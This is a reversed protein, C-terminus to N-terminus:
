LVGRVTYDGCPRSAMSAMAFSAPTASSFECQLPNPQQESKHLQTAEDHQAQRHPFNLLDARKALQREHDPLIRPEHARGNTKHKHIRNRENHPLVTAVQQIVVGLRLGFVAVNEDSGTATGERM